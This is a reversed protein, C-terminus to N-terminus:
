AGTQEGADCKIAELPPIVQVPTIVVGGPEDEINAREGPLLRLLVTGDCDKLIFDRDGENHFPGGIPLPFPHTRKVFIRM